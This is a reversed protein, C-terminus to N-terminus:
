LVRISGQSLLFFRLGHGAGREPIGASEEKM